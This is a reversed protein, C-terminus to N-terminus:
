SKRPHCIIHDHIGVGIIKGALVQHMEITMDNSMAEATIMAMTVVMIVASALRFKASVTTNRSAVSVDDIKITTGIAIKPHVLASTRCL